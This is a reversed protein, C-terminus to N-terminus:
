LAVATTRIFTAPLQDDLWFTSNTYYFLSSFNTAIPFLRFRTKYFFAKQKSCAFQNVWDHHRAWVGTLKTLPHLAEFCRINRDEARRRGDVVDDVCWGLSVYASTSGKVCRIGLRAFECRQRRSNVM